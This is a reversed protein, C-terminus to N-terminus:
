GMGCAASLRASLADKRIKGSATLPFTDTFMWHSPTKYDALQGRCLRTLEAQGPPEPTAARIVAGVVEGWFRDPVGVVAVEAVGPHSLLVDEIERPYINEGGQIILEKIRGQIRCYGRADMAGLDGTHLWGDSDIAASTATEDALYGPMVLYGRTCIEGTTGLAATQGTRPDVIKVETQPLPRGVTHTRDAASDAPRASTISCSAETQGFTILFPIGFAAEAKRVLEACFPAGGGIGVRLSSVDRDTAGLHGILASLMTPVGGILAGRYAEILELELAPCFYPMLVQTALSQAVGLTLLGSGAVHFLPMSNIATEGARLGTAAAALRANNTLGRHTLVAAKPRSTTGSTYLIQAPERPHVAPLQGANERRGYQDLDGLLVVERLGPLQDRVSDLIAPLERGQHRAALFLGRAKSHRLVHLLEAAQYAPNVTVLVLGALGAAYELLVWEPCNGAWVAIREGPRYRATLARAVREARALLEDYRWERRMAPDPSGDILAIRGPAQGAAARLVGGVTTERIPVSTDAPWHSTTLPLQAM